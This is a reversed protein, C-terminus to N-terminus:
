SGNLWPVLRHEKRSQLRDFHDYFRRVRNVSRKVASRGVGRGHGGDIAERRDLRTQLRKWHGRKM